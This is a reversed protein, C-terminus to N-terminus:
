RYSLRSSGQLSKLLSVAELSAALKILWGRLLETDLLGCLCVRFSNTDSNERAPAPSIEPGQKKKFGTTATAVVVLSVQNIALVLLAAVPRLWPIRL